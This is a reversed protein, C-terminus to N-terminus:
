PMPEPIIIRPAIPTAFTSSEQTSRGRNMAEDLLPEVREWIDRISGHRVAPDASLARGIERDIAATLDPRDRLERPVTAQVRALSPREGNLMRAVVRLPSDGHRLPFAETGCLVEYLVSAFSFVDTPAVVRSNGM